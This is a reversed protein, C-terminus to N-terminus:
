LVCRRNCYSIIPTFDRDESNKEVGRHIYGREDDTDVITEGDVTFRLTWLGRTMPQQPWMTIWMQAM